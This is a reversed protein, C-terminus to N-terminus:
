LYSKEGSFLKEGGYTLVDVLYKLCFKLTEVLSSFEKSGSIFIAHGNRYTLSLNLRIHGGDAKSKM